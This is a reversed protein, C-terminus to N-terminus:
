LPSHPYEPRVAQETVPQGATAAARRFFVDNKSTQILDTDTGFLPKENSILYAYVELIAFFILVPLINGANNKSRSASIPRFSRKHVPVLYPYWMAMTCSLFKLLSESQWLRGGAQFSCM